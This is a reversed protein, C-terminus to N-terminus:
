KIPGVFRLLTSVVEELRKSKGLGDSLGNDVSFKDAEYHLRSAAEILTAAYSMSSNAADLHPKITRLYKPKWEARADALKARLIGIQKDYAAVKAELQVMEPSPGKEASHYHHFACSARLREAVTARSTRVDHLERVFKTVINPTITSLVRRLEAHEANLHNPKTEIDM